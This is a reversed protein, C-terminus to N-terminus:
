IHFGLSWKGKLCSKQPDGQLSTIRDWHSFSSSQLMVSLDARLWRQPRIEWPLENLLWLKPSDSLKETLGAWGPPPFTCKNTHLINASITIGQRQAEKLRCFMFCNSNRYFNIKPNPCLPFIVVLRGWHQPPLPLPLTFFSLFFFCVFFSKFDITLMHLVMFCDIGVNM